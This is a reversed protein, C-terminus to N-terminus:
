RDKRAPSKKTSTRKTKKVPPRTTKKEPLAPTAALTDMAAPAAVATDTAINEEGYIEKDNRYGNPFFLSDPYEGPTVSVATFGIFEEEDGSKRTNGLLCLHNDYVIGIFDTYKFKEPLPFYLDPAVFGDAMLERRDDMDIVENVLMTTDTVFGVTKFNLLTKSEGTPKCGYLLFKFVKTLSRASYSKNQEQFRYFTDKNFDMLMKRNAEGTKDAEEGLAMEIRIRGNSFWATMKGNSIEDGKSVMKYEIKGQFVQQSFATTVFLSLLLAPLIHKMFVIKHSYHTLLIFSFRFIHSDL